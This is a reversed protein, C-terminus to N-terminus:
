FEELNYDSIGTRYEMAYKIYKIQSPEDLNKLQISIPRLLKYGYYDLAIPDTGAFLYGLDKELGGHRFEQAKIMVKLADCIILDSRFITNLEAIGKNINKIKSHLKLRESKSLYGFKDKLANTLRVSLHDKLIPLSIIYDQQFPIESVKLTFGRTTKIKKFAYDYFNIFSIGLEKCKEIIPHNKIKSKSADVGHADGCIIESASSKIQEYVAEIMDPHTTTPYPNHSVLNVKLLVKGKINTRFKSILSALFRKRDPNKTFYITSKDSSM